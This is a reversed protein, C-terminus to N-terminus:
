LLDVGELKLGDPIDSKILRLSGTGEDEQVAEIGDKNSKKNGSSTTRLVVADLNGEDAEEFTFGEGGNDIAETRVVIVQVDGEDEESLKFADDNNNTGTNKIFASDIGGNGAEDFDVGEDLNGSIVSRKMLSYISGDGAEDLDIGDDLDIGFEYEEVSDDEYFSVEREFCADDPSGTVNGPIQEITVEGLEFEGEAASPLFAELVTPDCYAGNDTFNTKIVDIYIDGNNGEDLEVGDAGVNRFTSKRSYFHIDGAGRDDVRLGDADFKGNGVDEVIVNITSVSVSAPSGEGGGGAGAGCADALSCDSIHIGHNAFGKVTVNRLSMNVTGTQDDRLDVFIGKGATEGNLDGRNEISFFGPKGELILDSIFLDAGQNVSLLTENKDLKVTQGSGYISLGKVANYNLGSNLNVSDVSPLIFIKKAQKTEVAHRLSGKGSDKNNSVLAYGGALTASSFGAISLSICSALLSKKLITRTM